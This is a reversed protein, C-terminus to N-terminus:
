YTDAGFGIASRPRDNVIGEDLVVRFWYTNQLMKKGSWDATLTGYTTLVVDNNAIKDAARGRRPGHFIGVSLADPTM